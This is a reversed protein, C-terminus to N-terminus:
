AIEGAVERWAFTIPRELHRFRFASSRVSGTKRPASPLKRTPRDGNMRYPRARPMGLRPTLDVTVATGQLEEQDVRLVKILTASTVRSLLTKTARTSSRSLGPM